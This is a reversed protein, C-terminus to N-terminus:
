PSQLVSESLLQSLLVWMFATLICSGVVSMSVLMCVVPTLMDVAVCIGATPCTSTLIWVSMMGPSLWFEVGNVTYLMLSLFHYSFM